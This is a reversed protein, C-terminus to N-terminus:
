STLQECGWDNSILYLTVCISTTTTCHVPDFGAVDQSSSEAVCWM